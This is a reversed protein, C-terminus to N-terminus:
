LPEKIQEWETQRDTQRERERERERKIYIYLSLSLFLSLYLCLCLLLSGSLSLCVSQFFNPIFDSQLLFFINQFILSVHELLPRGDRHTEKERERERERYIYIYIYIYISLSLSLSFCLCLCVSWSQCISLFINSFTQFSIQGYSFSSIKSSLVSMNQKHDVM